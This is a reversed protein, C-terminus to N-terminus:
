YDAENIEGQTITEEKPIIEGNVAYVDWTRDEGRWRIAPGNENHLKGDKLTIQEPRHQIFAVKDYAAWWGVSKAVQEVVDLKKEFDVGLEKEMFRFYCMWSSDCFGYLQETIADYLDEATFETGEPIDLTELKSLDTNLPMRKVFVQAKACEVPNNFPGFFVAPPTLGAAIYLKKIADIATLLDVPETSTGTKTWEKGYDILKDEIDKPLETIVFLEKRKLRM